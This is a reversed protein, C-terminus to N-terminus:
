RTVKLFKELEVVVYDKSHNRAFVVLPIHGCGNIHSDAQKIAEWVNLKEQNKCEIAYPYIERARPSLRLDEGGVSSSTVQIDDSALDPAWSLLADRVRQALRRGKAKASSTKM